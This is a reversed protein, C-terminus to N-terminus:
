ERWTMNDNIHRYMGWGMLLAFLLALPVYGINGSGVPVSFAAFGFALLVATGPFWPGIRLAVFLARLASVNYILAGVALSGLVVMDQWIM